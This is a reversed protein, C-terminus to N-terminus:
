SLHPEKEWSRRLSPPLNIERRPNSKILGISIKFYLRIEYNESQFNHLAEFDSTNVKALQRHFMGLQTEALQLALGSWSSFDEVALVCPSRSSSASLHRYFPVRSPERIPFQEAEVKVSCRTM